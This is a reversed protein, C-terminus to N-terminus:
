KENANRTKGQNAFAFFLLVFRLAFNYLASRWVGKSFIIFNEPINNYTYVRFNLLFFSFSHMEKEKYALRIAICKKKCPLM